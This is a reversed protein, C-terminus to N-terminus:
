AVNRLPQFPLTELGITEGLQMVTRNTRPVQVKMPEQDKPM